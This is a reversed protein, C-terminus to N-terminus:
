FRGVRLLDSFESTNGGPGTATASVQTDEQGLPTTTEFSFSAKGQQNTSVRKQGLFTKGGDENQPNSFFQVTFTKKKKKTSPTSDLTGEITTTGGNTVASTLVPFNQLTNEGKDPDKLDQKRGTDGGGLDIGLENNFVSNGLIRNGITTGGFVGVGVRFNNAITNAEGPETGGIVNNASRIIMGAGTNFLPSTGDKQVGILNGQVKNNGGSGLQVAAGINTGSILNRKDPTSGGIIANTAGGSTTVGADNGRDFAGSPDTGVFNGEIRVGEGRFISIGDAPLRNIALGRVVVNSADIDLGPRSGANFGNLEVLIVADLGGTQRSNPKSGSQSYGDITVAQRIVPLASTPSITKVGTGPIKFKITDAGSRANADEIAQRLSGTGGDDTNTVTFTDAHAPKAALMLGLAMLTALVLGLLLARSPIPIEAM